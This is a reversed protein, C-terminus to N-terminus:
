RKAPSRCPSARMVKEYLDHLPVYNHKFYLEVFLMTKGCVSCELPDYGFSHLISDRWRNFSLYIPHKEKSIFRRLSHDSKKHRAYIGYYRIM